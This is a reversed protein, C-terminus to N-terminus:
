LESATSIAQVTAGQMMTKNSTQGVARIKQVGYRGILVPSELPM